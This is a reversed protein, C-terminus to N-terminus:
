GCFECVSCTLLSSGALMFRHVKIYQHVSIVTTYGFLSSGVLHYFKDIANNIASATISCHLGAFALSLSM